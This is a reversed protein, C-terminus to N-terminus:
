ICLQLSACRPMSWLQVHTALWIESTQLHTMYTASPSNITNKFSPTTKQLAGALALCPASLAISCCAAHLRSSIHLDAHAFISFTTSLQDTYLLDVRWAAFAVFEDQPMDGLELFNHPIEVTWGQCACSSSCAHSSVSQFSISTARTCECAVTTADSLQLLKTGTSHSM